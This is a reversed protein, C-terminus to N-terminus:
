FLHWRVYENANGAGNKGKYKVQTGPKPIREGEKRKGTNKELDSGFGNKIWVRRQRTNHM